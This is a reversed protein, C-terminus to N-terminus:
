WLGSVGHCQPAAAILLIPRGSRKAEDTGDKWTAYWAIGGQPAPAAAAQGAVSAAILLLTAWLTTQIRLRM